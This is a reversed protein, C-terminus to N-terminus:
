RIDYVEAGRQRREPCKLRLTILRIRAPTWFPEDGARSVEHVVLSWYHCLGAFAPQGLSTPPVPMPWFGHARESVLQPCPRSIAGRLSLAYETINADPSGTKQLLFLMIDHHPAISNRGVNHVNISRVGYPEHIHEHAWIQPGSKPGSKPGCPQPSSSAPGRREM